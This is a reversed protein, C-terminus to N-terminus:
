PEIQMDFLYAALTLQNVVTPQTLYHGADWAVQLFIPNTDSTQAQQLAAAFKYAHLPFAMEDKEGPTILTPPYNTPQVNHYPSWAYLAKFDEPNDRSGWGTTIIQSIYDYMRVMDLLPIDILALGFLEPEQVIAAAPLPGSASGGNAILKDASSYGEQILFKAAHLYDDIANQKNKGAGAEIWKQGYDSGGRIGPYAYIGGMDMWVMVSNLYYLTSPFNFGYAYLWAPNSGDKKFLDKRYVIFMPVRTGDKSEYFVQETAYEDPNFTIEPRSHVNIKATAVDLRYITGPDTQGTMGFFAEDDNQKGVFSTMFGTSRRSVLWGGKYPLEVSRELQGSLTYIEVHPSVDKLYEIVLKGGLYKATNITYEKEPIIEVWNTPQSEKINFKVVRLNPANHSTAFYFTEGNSGLFMFRHQRGGAITQVPTESQLDKVYVNNVELGVSTFVFYQGDETVNGQFIWGPNELDQYVIKDSAQPTRLRHFRLQHGEPASQMTSGEPANFGGYYFGKSDKNWSIRSYFLYLGVLRDDLLQKREVDLVYWENWQSGGKAVGFALYKGDPSPEFEILRFTGNGTGIKSIDDSSILLDAQGQSVSSSVYIGAPELKRSNFFYQGAAKRPLGSYGPKQDRIRAYRQAIRNRVSITDIYSRTLSDQAKAWAQVEASEMDELWRFPDEVNIGHYVDTVQETKTEPYNSVVPRDVVRPKTCSALLILISLAFFHIRKM